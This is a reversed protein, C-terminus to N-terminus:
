PLILINKVEETTGARRIIIPSNSNEVADRTVAVVVSITKDELPKLTIGCAGCILQATPPSILELDLRADGNTNNMVHLNFLNALRGDPLTSYAAGPARLLHMVVEPRHTLRYVFLASVASIIGMYIFVRPRFWSKRKEGDLERTSKRGILELPRKLSTMVSDCADACRGCMICELQLGDRIDIGTPCVRQCLGCDICHGEARRGRPEGRNVDYAIIPSDRDLLISQFRAYPCVFSCFQERFWTLDFYFALMVFSMFFFPKPHDGPPQLMWHLIVRPDFFYGLFTNAVFAAVGLYLVHKIIKKGWVKATKPSSDVIKRHAANGEIFEEIPRIVWEVFVTQPCAYGCWVRGFLATALFLILGLLLFAFALFGGDTMRFVGGFLYAVKDVVDIRLMPHGGVKIWPMAVYLVILGLALNRRFKAIAGPRRDPYIWIRKGGATITPPVPPPAQDLNKDGM